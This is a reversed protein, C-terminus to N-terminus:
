VFLVRAPMPDDLRQLLCIIKADPAADKNVLIQRTPTIVVKAIDPRDPITVYVTNYDKIM